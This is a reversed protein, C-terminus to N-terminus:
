VRRDEASKTAEARFGCDFLIVAILLALGVLSVAVEYM